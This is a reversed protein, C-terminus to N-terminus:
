RLDLRGVAGTATLGVADADRDLDAAFTTPVDELGVETVRTASTTTLDIATAPAAGTYTLEGAEVAYALDTAAPAGTLTATADLADTAADVALAGAATRTTLGLTGGTVSAALKGVDTGRVGIRYPSGDETELRVGDGAPLALDAATPAAALEVVGIAPAAAADDPDTVTVSASTADGATTLRARSPVDELHLDLVRAAGLLADTSTVDVDLAGLPDGRYTLAPGDGAARAARGAARDLDLALDATAPLDTTALAARRTATTVSAAFPGAASRDLALRAGDGAGFGLADVGIARVALRYADPTDALEAREGTLGLTAAPDSAALLELRGVAGTADVGDALDLAVAGPVGVLRGALVRARGYLPADARVDFALEDVADGTYALGDAFDARVAARDPADAYTVRVAFPASSAVLALPGAGTQALALDFAPRAAALDDRDAGLSFTEPADGGRADYGLVIRDRGPVVAALEARVEVPLPAPDGALRRVDIRLGGPAAVLTAVLDPAFDDDVNLNTPTDLYAAFSREFETGYPRRLRTVVRHDTPGPPTVVPSANPSPLNPSVLSLSPAAQRRGPVAVRRGKTAAFIRRKGDRVAVRLVPSDYLPRTPLAFRRKTRTHSVGEWRTGTWRQLVVTRRKASRGLTGRVVIAEGRDAKAPVSVRLQVGSPRAAVATSVVVLALVACLAAVRVRRSLRRRHKPPM